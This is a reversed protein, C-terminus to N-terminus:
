EPHGNFSDSSVVVVVVGRIPHCVITKRISQNGSHSVQIVVISRGFTDSGTIALQENRGMGRSKKTQRAEGQRM